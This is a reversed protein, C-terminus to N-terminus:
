NGGDRVFCRLIQKNYKLCWGHIYPDTIPIDASNLLESEAQTRLRKDQYAPCRERTCEGNIFDCHPNRRILGM